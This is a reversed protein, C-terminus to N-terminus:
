KNLSNFILVGFVLMVLSNADKFFTDILSTGELNPHDEVNNYEIYDECSFIFNTCCPFWLDYLNEYEYSIYDNISQLTGWGDAGDPLPYDDISDLGTFYWGGSAEGYSDECNNIHYTAM